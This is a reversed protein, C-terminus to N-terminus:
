KGIRELEKKAQMAQPAANNVVLNLFSRAADIRKDTEANRAARMWAHGRFEIAATNFLPSAIVDDLLKKGPQKRGFMDPVALFTNAAIYRVRLSVPVGNQIESDHRTALLAVAQDQLAMGKEALSM